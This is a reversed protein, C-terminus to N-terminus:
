AEHLREQMRAEIGKIRQLLKLKLRQQATLHASDDAKSASHNPSPVAALSVHRTPKQSLEEHSDEQKLQFHTHSPLAAPVLDCSSPACWEQPPTGNKPLLM